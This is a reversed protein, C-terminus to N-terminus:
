GLVDVFAISGRTILRKTLREPQGARRKPKWGDIRAIGARDFKPSPTPALIDPLQALQMKLEAARESIRECLDEADQGRGQGSRGGFRRDGFRNM